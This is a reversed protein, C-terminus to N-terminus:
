CLGVQSKFVQFSLSLRPLPHYILFNSSKCTHKMYQNYRDATRRRLLVSIVCASFIINDAAFFLSDESKRVEKTPSGFLGSDILFFFDSIPFYMTVFFCKKKVIIQM